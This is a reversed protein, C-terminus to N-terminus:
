TQQEIFCFLIYRGDTYQNDCTSLAIFRDIASPDRSHKFAVVSRSVKEAMYSTLAGKSGFSTQILSETGACHILAFPSLQMNGQPTFLYIPRGDVFTSEDAIAAFMSGDNLHHGFIFTGMDTFTPSNSAKMFICGSQAIARQTGEFDHYLYYDDDSGQVVPYNIPTGPVYIWAVIDPNIESLAKWDVTVSALDFTQESTETSAIDQAGFQVGAVSEVRQYTQQGQWYSFAIVGLAALSGVFAVLAVVLVVTWIRKSKKRKAYGEHWADRRYDSESELRERPDHATHKSAM